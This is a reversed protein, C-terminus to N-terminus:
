LTIKFLYPHFRIVVKVLSDANETPKSISKAANLGANAIGLRIVAGAIFKAPTL